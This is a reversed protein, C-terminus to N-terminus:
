HVRQEDHQALLLEDQEVPVVVGGDEDVAPVAVLAELRRAAPEAGHVVEDVWEHVGVVSASGHAELYRAEDVLDTM